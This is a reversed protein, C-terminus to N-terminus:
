FDWSAQVHPQARSNKGTHFKPQESEEDSDDGFGWSRGSGKKGGMGDGSSKIGVHSKLAGQYRNEQDKTAGSPSNDSAEWNANMMKVAKNRNENEPVHQNLNSAPADPSDTMSFHPDFDKHRDKLNTVTSLPHGKKEPSPTRSSDGFVNDKYLGAATSNTKGRPLGPPRRDGGPTGDDQFEFNTKFDPRSKAVPPHKAPSNMNPEDDEWGFHRVDQERIKQPVKHPTTFDEFGWQSQHKSKPRAPMPKPTTDDGHNFDFHNYKTPHPKRLNDDGPNPTAPAGGQSEENDFLRSPQFGNKGAGGKSAIASAGPTRAINKHPSGGKGAPTSENSDGGVFLESMDRPPPRASAAKTPSRNEKRSSTQKAALSADPSENGFLESYERPLPQHSARGYPAMVKPQEEEEDDPSGFLSLSSHPDRTANQHSTPPRSSNTVENPDRPSSQTRFAALEGGQSVAASSSAILRAQDKGDCIPWNKARAGIVEVQKLLSGQDWQLRISQISGNKFHVIHVKSGVNTGM